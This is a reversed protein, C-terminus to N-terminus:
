DALEITIAPIIYIIITMIIKLIECDINDQEVFVYRLFHYLFIVIYIMALKISNQIKTNDNNLLPCIYTLQYINTTNVLKIVDTIISCIFM